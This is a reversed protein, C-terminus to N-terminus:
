EDMTQISNRFNYSAKAMAFKIDNGIGEFDKMLRIPVSRTYKYWKDKDGAGTEGVYMKWVDTKKIAEDKEKCCYQLLKITFRRGNGRNTVTPNMVGNIMAIVSPFIIM